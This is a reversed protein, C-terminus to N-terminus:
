DNGQWPTEQLTKLALSFLASTVHASPMSLYVFILVVDRQEELPQSVRGLRSLQSVPLLRGGRYVDM